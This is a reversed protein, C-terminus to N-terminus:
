ATAHAHSPVESSSLRCISRTVSQRVRCRRCLNQAPSSPPYMAVVSEGAMTALTQFLLVVGNRAAINYIHQVDSPPRPNPRNPLKGAYGRNEKLNHRSIM